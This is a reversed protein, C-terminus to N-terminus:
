EVGPPMSVSAHANMRNQGLVHGRLRPGHWGVNGGFLLIDGKRGM